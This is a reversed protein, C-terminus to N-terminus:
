KMAYKNYTTEEKICGNDLVVIRDVDKLFDIRHSITIITLDREQKIMRLVNKIEEESVRDLNATVEDLLIVECNRLLGQALGLKQREGGSLLLGNEGIDTNLGDQLTGIFNELSVKKLIDNLQEDTADANGLLLNNKITGPFLFTDQSVKAIKSRLSESDIVDIGTGDITITGDQPSYFKLILDFITTKGTGSAGVIGLWENKHITLNLSKLVNGREETYAFTVDSFQINDKYSFPVNEDAHPIPMTIINFLKDYEGLQAKFNYNTHMFQKIVGLFRGTYNLIVILSGLTMKGIVILYSTLGFTVGTFLTDSFNDVWIGSMNDYLAVKSWISVSQENVEKLRNIQIKELVMAKVFKIGRFTDNIIQNMKANNDVIKETLTQVKNAFWNSPFFAIPIYFLLFLALGWNLAFVYSFVIIGTLGTAILQPIDIMWFVIYKMAEGRCYAALESSNEKDFYSVSQYTLNEFGKIALKLGMKRCVIALKYRYIASLMTAFLPIICFLLIFISIARLDKNPIFRDIIQQMLITPVLGITQILLSIIGSLISYTWFHPLEKIVTRRVIKEKNINKKM